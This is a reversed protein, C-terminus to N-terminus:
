LLIISIVFSSSIGKFASNATNLSISSFLILSPVVYLKKSLLSALKITGSLAVKICKELLTIIKDFAKLYM